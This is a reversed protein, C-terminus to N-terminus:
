YAGFEAIAPVGRASDIVVAIAEATTQGLQWLQRQGIVTGKIQNGSSDKPAKNWTGNQKIEVHYATSREGLEIPERISLTSFTVPAPPDVELRGSTKGAAAAWYTCVSDDVAKAGDFGAASWTSDATTPQGKLVDTQLLSAYWSGFQQLLTVDKPDFAGTNSPPVNFLFTTNMGVSTFFISQMSSLSMPTDQPHWFWHDGDPLRDSVNTEWGCWANMNVPGGCNSLNLSSSTRSAIGNENGIWQLDAFAPPSSGAARQDIEPGAWILTHPQLQRALRFVHAWDVINSGPSNAGDLWLEYVPGYNTLLETLQNELYTQYGTNSSPFHQDWPALYFGVRMGAAHMADTWMKVVDGTGNMWNSQAVSYQNCDNTSKSPWLCFGISHKATLTAQRFGAAKLQSVWSNVTDQTLNTPAFVTPKDSTNGQETGDFTALSFHIFATLETHQYSAQEPSPVPAVAPLGGSNSQFLNPCTSVFSGDPQIGPQGASAGGAGGMGGSASSGAHGGASAGGTATAGGAGGGTGVFGGANTGGTGTGGTGTGGTGTGGTSTGGTGVIGGTHTGGTGTGGIGTGGTGVIGGTGTGGTGMIGGTGTGGTGTGGSGISGGSAGGTGGTGGSGGRSSNAGCSLALVALTAVYVRGPSRSFSNPDV